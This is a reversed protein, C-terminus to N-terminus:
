TGSDDSPVTCLQGRKAWVELGFGTVPTAVLPDVEAHNLAETVVSSGSSLGPDLVRSM